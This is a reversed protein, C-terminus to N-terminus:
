GRAITNGPCEIIAAANWGERRHFTSDKLALCENLKESVAVGKCEDRAGCYRKCDKKTSYETEKLVTNYQVGTDNLWDDWCGSEAYFYVIFCNRTIVLIVVFFM